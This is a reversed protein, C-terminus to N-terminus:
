FGLLRAKQLILLCIMGQGSGGGWQGGQLPPQHDDALLPRWLVTKGEPLCFRHSRSSQALVGKERYEQLWHGPVQPLFSSTKPHKQRGM